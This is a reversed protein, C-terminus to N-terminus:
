RPLHCNAELEAWSWAMESQDMQLRAMQSWSSWPPGSGHWSELHEVSVCSCCCSCCSSCSSPPPADADAPSHCLRWLLPQHRWCPAGRRGEDMWKSSICVHTWTGPSNGGPSSTLNDDTSASRNVGGTGWGRGGEPSCGWTGMSTSHCNQQKKM